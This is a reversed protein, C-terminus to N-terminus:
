HDGARSVRRRWKVDSQLWNLKKLDLLCGGEIHDCLVMSYIVSVDCM